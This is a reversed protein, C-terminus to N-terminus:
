QPDAVPIKEKCSPCYIWCENWSDGGEDFQNRNSPHFEKDVDSKEYTLIAFCRKCTVKLEVKGVVKIM